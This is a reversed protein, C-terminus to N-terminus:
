LGIVARANSRKRLRIVIVIAVVTVLVMLAAAEKDSIWRELAISTSLSWAWFGAIISIKKEEPRWRNFFWLFFYRTWGVQRSGLWFCLAFGGGVWVGM